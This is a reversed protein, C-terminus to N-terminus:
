PILRVSRFESNGGPPLEIPATEIRGVGDVEFVAPYRGAPLSPFHVAGQEGTVARDPWWAGHVPHSLTLRVEAGPPMPSGDPALVIGDLSAGRAMVVDVEATTDGSGEYVEFFNNAFWHLEPDWARVFLREGRPLKVEGRGDAGTRNGAAVPPDFANSKRTAIPIMGPLPHGDIDAVLLRATVTPSATSTRPPGPPAAPGDGNGCASLFLAGLWAARKM